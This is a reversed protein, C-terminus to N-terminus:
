VTLPLVTPHTIQQVSLYRVAEQTFGTGMKGAVEAWAPLKNPPVLLEVMALLLRSRELDTWSPM